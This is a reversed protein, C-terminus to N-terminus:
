GWVIRRIVEEDCSRQHYTESMVKLWDWAKKCEYEKRCYEREEKTLSRGLAKEADWEIFALTLSQAIQLSTIAVVLPMLPTMVKKLEQEMNGKPQTDM